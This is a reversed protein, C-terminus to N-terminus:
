VDLSAHGLTAQSSRNTLDESQEALIRAAIGPGDLGLTALIQAPKGQPLYRAPVGLRLMPPANKVGCLETIADCLSAGAGGSAVGNEVTVIFPAKAAAALMVPDAPRVCGVDWVGAMVGSTALLAAAALAAEVRDGIAL